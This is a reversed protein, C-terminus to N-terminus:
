SQVYEVGKLTELTPIENTEISDDGRSTHVQKGSKNTM